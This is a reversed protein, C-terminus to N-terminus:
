APKPEARRPLRITFVAGPGDTNNRAEITGHHLELLRRTIALGLGSGGSADDRPGPARYFRDFIRGLDEAKIGAGTDAVSIAVMAENANAKASITVSGSAPTHGIANRVLNMLAAELMDPDGEVWLGPASSAAIAPGGIARGRVAAEEVLTAVDLPQFPREAGRDLRALALLDDVLRELRGTEERIAGLAEQKTGADTLPHEILDLNGRVVALPTRLEHSADAVFRRQETFAAELRDLMENFSEVMVGVEDSPGDYPVRGGLSSQTIRRATASVERLPSLSARAAWASLVAGIVVVIAGGIGLSGGLSAAVSQVYATSLGAQFVGAVTGNASVIPATAMRYREPGLTVTSFGAPPLAVNGAATELRIDSNSIVRGDTLRMLLIPHAGSEARTRASLYTRAIGVLGSTAEESEGSRVAAMFAETERLLGRDIDAQLGRSVAVYSTLALAIVGATLTLTMALAVRGSATLRRRGSM